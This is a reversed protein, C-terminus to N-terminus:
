LSGIRDDLRTSFTIISMELRSDYRSAVKSGKPNNYKGKPTAVRDAIAAGSDQVRGTSLGIIATIM